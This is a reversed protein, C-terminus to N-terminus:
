RKRPTVRQSGRQGSKGSGARKSGPSSSSAQNTPRGLAEVLLQDLSRQIRDYSPGDESYWSEYFAQWDEPHMFREWLRHTAQIQELGGTTLADMVFGGPIHAAIRVTLWVEKDEDTLGIERWPSDESTDDEDHIEDESM